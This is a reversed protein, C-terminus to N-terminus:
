DYNRFSMVGANKLLDESIELFANGIACVDGRESRQDYPLALLQDLKISAQLLVDIETRGRLVGKAAKKVWHIGYEVQQEYDTLPIDDDQSNPPTAFELTREANQYLLELKGFRSLHQSTIHDDITMFNLDLNHFVSSGEFFVGLLYGGAPDLQTAFNSRYAIPRYSSLNDILERLTPNRTTILLLDIDSWSDWADRAFSGFSYIKHVLSFQIFHQILDGRLSKVIAPDSNLLTM